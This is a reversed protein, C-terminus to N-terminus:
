EFKVRWPTDKFALEAIMSNEHSEHKTQRVDIEYILALNCPMMDFFTLPTARLFIPLRTTLLFPLLYTCNYTKFGSNNKNYSLTLMDGESLM